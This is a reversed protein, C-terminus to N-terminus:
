ILTFAALSEVYVDALKEIEEQDHASVPDFVGVTKLGLTKATKISYLGDEFLWTEEPKTNMKEMARSFIKSESKSTKLEVCSLIANFYATYGLRDFAALIYDKRTSTAITMPIAAEKIRELLERAGPKFQAFHYYYDEVVGNIGGIIEEPPQCLNYKEKLYLAGMDVTMSFLKDGLGPEAKKGITQLYREGADTWVHMTDLLVGDVDFIIGKIAMVEVKDKRRCSM